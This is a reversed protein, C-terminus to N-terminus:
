DRCVRSGFGLSSICNGSSPIAAFTSTVAGNDLSIETATGTPATTFTILGGYRVDFITTVNTATIANAYMVAGATHQVRIATNCDTFDVHDPSAASGPIVTYIYSLGVATAAATCDIHIGQFNGLGGGAIVGSGNLDIMELGAMTVSRFFSGNIAIGGNVFLSNQITGSAFNPGSSNGIDGLVSANTWANSGSLIHNGTTSAKISVNSDYFMAGGGFVANSAIGTTSLFTMRNVIVNSADSVGLATTCAASIAMGRFRINIGPTNGMVRIGTNATSVTSGPAPPTVICSTIFTASDQIAYTSTGTPATWTGAVTIVTATNATIPRFQLVGTGATIRM